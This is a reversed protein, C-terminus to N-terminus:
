LRWQGDQMRYSRPFRRAFQTDHTVVILTLGLQDKLKFFLDQIMQGNTSDLNGTPEDAFLISPKRILARAIAVRQLEGGSLQHPFHETRLGLGMTHLLDRAYKEASALDDGGIRAPLLVNELATLENFLHHFQFVFGMKENRFQALQEDNLKFLDQGLAWLEGRDPRDLTGLIHLFTSKGAGSSGIISVADGERIELSVGRLINLTNTGQVYSKFINTARLIVNKMM